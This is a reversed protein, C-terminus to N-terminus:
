CLLEIAIEGNGVDPCRIIQEEALIQGAHSLFELLSMCTTDIDFNCDKNFNKRYFVHTEEDIVNM